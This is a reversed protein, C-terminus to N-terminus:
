AEVEEVTTVVATTWHASRDNILREIDDDDWHGPVAVVDVKVEAGPLRRVGIHDIFVIVRGKM